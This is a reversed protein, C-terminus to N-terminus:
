NSQITLCYDKVQDQGCYGYHESIAVIPWVVVLDIEFYIIKLLGKLIFFHILNKPTIM